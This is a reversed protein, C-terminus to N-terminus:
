YLAVMNLATSSTYVRKARVPLLTGDQVNNFTALSDNATMLVVNGGTGVFIARCPAYAIEDSDSPTIAIAEYAPDQPNGRFAHHLPDAM